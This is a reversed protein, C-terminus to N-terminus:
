PAERGNLSAAIAMADARALFLHQLKCSGFELELELMRIPHNGFRYRRTAGATLPLSYVGYSRPATLPGDARVSRPNIAREIAKEVSDPM